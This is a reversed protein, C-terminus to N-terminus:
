PVPDIIETFIAISIDGMISDHQTFGSTLRSMMLMQVFNNLFAVYQVYPLIKVEKIGLCRLGPIGPMKTSFVRFEPYKKDM